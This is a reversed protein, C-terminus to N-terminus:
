STASGRWKQHLAALLESMECPKVLVADCGSEAARRLDAAMAHGTLAIVPITRTSPNERLRRSVDCGHMDPLGLDLVIADPQMRAARELAEEGNAAVECRIGEQQLAVCLIDRTDADDDVVLVLRSVQNVM